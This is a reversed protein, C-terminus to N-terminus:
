DLQKEHLPLQIQKKGTKSLIRDGDERPLRPGGELVEVDEPTLGVLDPKNPILSVGIMGGDRAKLGSYRTETMEATASHMIAITSPLILKLAKNQPIEM